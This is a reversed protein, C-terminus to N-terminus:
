LLFRYGVGRVSELRRGASGLKSRLSAVHVEVARETGAPIEEVTLPRGPPSLLQRLIVLESDTLPQSQPRLLEGRELDVSVPGVNLVGEDAPRRAWRLLGGLRASLEAESFPFTLFSVGGLQLAPELGEEQEPARTLLFPAAVGTERRLAPGLPVGQPDEMGMRLIVVDPRESRALGRAEVGQTAGLFRHGNRVSVRRIFDLVQPNPDVGLLTVGSM